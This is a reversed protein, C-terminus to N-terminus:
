CNFKLQKIKKKWRNTNLWTRNVRKLKPVALKKSPAQQRIGAEHRITITKDQGDSIVSRRPSM